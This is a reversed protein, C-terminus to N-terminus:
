WEVVSSFEQKFFSCGYREPENVVNKTETKKLLAAAEMRNERLALM